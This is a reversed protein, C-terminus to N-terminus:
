KEKLSDRYNFIQHATFNLLPDYFPIREPSKKLKEMDKSNMSVLHSSKSAVTGGRKMEDGPGEGIYFGAELLGTRVPTSASYTSLIAREKMRSYIEKFFNVTWLQPNKKVSFPDLFVADFLIEIDRIRDRADGCLIEITIDDSSYHMEKVATLVIKYYDRYEPPIKITKLIKYDLLDKELSIIKLKCAHDAKKVSYIASLMNYGLGFGVDLIAMSGSNALSDIRCPMCYKNFSEKIAGSRSHYTEEYDSSFFTITEDGTKITEM